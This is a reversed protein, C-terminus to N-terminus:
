VIQRDRTRYIDMYKYFENDINRDKKIYISIYQKRVIMEKIEAQHTDTQPTNTPVRKRSIRIILRM